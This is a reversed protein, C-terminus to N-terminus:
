VYLPSRILAKITYFYILMKWSNNKTDNIKDKKTESSVDVDDKALSRHIEEMQFTERM